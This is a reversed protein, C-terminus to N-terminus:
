TLGRRPKFNTARLFPFTRYIVMRRSIEGSAIGRHYTFSIVKTLSNVKGGLTKGGEQCLNVIGLSCGHGLGSLKPNQLLCRKCISSRPSPSLFYERCLHTFYDPILLGITHVIKGQLYWGPHKRLHDNQLLSSYSRIVFHQM